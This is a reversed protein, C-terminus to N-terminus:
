DNGTRGACSDRQLWDMESPGAHGKQLVLWCFDTKGGGPRGGAAIVHGPPMSPRPTLMWVRRLPLPRLWRAANLRATPFIVAVKFRVLELAHETFSRATNFPPNCVINDHRRTSALFDEVQGGLYGRDVLDAGTAKLGTHKAAEPITGFGCCPDHICGRFAEVAFLRESCWVPEVYHDDVERVWIHSRRERAVSTM